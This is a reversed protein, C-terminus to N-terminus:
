QTDHHKFVCLQKGTYNDLVQLFFFVSGHVPTSLFCAAPCKEPLNIKAPFYQGMLISVMAIFVYPPLCNLQSLENSVDERICIATTRFCLIDREEEILM